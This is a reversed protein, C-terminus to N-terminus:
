LTSEQYSNSNRKKPQLKGRVETGNLSLVKLKKLFINKVSNESFKITARLFMESSKFNYDKIKYTKDLSLKLNNNLHEM